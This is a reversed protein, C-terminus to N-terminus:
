ELLIGNIITAWQQWDFFFKCIFTQKKKNVFHLTNEKKKQKNTTQLKKPKTKKRTIIKM